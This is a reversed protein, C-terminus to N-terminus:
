KGAKGQAKGAEARRKAWYAKMRRSVAKRTAASMPKRGRKRAKAPRGVGRRPKGGVSALASEIASIQQDIQKREAQLEQLARRLPKTVDIAM